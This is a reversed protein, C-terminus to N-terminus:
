MPGGPRGNVYSVCLGQNRFTPNNFRQWGGDMCQSRNVPPGTVPDCADGIGDLDFDAQDPNPALPCNDADDPVGDNDDDADCADGIGDGDADEQGSNADTPCNDVGDHIGDGDTDSLFEFDYTTEDGNIGITLADANGDFGGAWGSGAKLLIAGLTGHVGAHPFKLLVEAWTCPNSMPCKDAANGPARTAWWNGAPFAGTLTDWTQWVGPVVTQTLYPEFVLRGQFSTDADTVNYDVNFQLSVAFVQAGTPSTRYTSYELKTISDLRTGGYAALGLAMSTTGDPLIFNASGDGAPPMGPGSEMQGTATGPVGNEQVFVWGMMDLNSVVVTTYTGRVTAATALCAALAAAWVLRRTESRRM